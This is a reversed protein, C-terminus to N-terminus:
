KKRFFSEHIYSAIGCLANALVQSEHNLTAFIMGMGMPINWIGLLAAAVAGHYAGFGGPVPIATSMSGVLMILFADALTLSSFMPIDQLAWVICASTLWHLVWIIVSYLLFLWGHKMHAFSTFGSFLGAVFRWSKTWFGGRNRLKRLLFVLGINVLTFVGLGIWVSSQPVKLSSTLWAGFRDAEVWVMVVALVFVLLFDFGREMAVTGLCNDFGVLRRGEADKDSHRMVYGIRIVEGARPVVLNAACCINYANFCTVFSTSPDIPLLLRRWRLGRFALGAAGLLISVVIWEWRCQRLADAFQAWDVSRLCFYVLVVAVATWFCYRFINKVKKDM